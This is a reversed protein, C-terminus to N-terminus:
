KDNHKREIVKNRFVAIPEGNNTLDFLVSLNKAEALDKVYHEEMKTTVMVPLNIAWQDALAAIGAFSDM